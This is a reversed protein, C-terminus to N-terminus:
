SIFFKSQFEFSGVFSKTRCVFNYKDPTFADPLPVNGAITKAFDTASNGTEEKINQAAHPLSQSGPKNSVTSAVTRTFTLCPSAPKHPPPNSRFFSRSFSRSSSSITRQSLLITTYRSLITTSTM